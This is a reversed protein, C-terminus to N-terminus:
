TIWGVIAAKLDYLEARPNFFIATQIKDLDMLFSFM